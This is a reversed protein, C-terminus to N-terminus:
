KRRGNPDTTDDWLQSQGYTAAAQRAEEYTALRGHVPVIQEVELRLREVAGVFQVLNPIANPPQDRNNQPNFSDAEILIKEKPLFVMLMGPHHLNGAYHYVVLERSGDAFTRSGVVGEFAAQRGSQALRDPHITRPTAWVQRYYPVNDNHTVVTAGEAAYTRLGGSHDFHTHTNIIYKIPKGPIARKIAEIAPLSIEESDPAEVAVIHDLFEIAVTRDRPGLPISWVGPSLQQAQMVFPVAPRAQRIRDPVDIAVALNPKVETVTVDLVPYGGERHIIRSPFTVGGFDKYDAFIAEYLVDGLVPTGVRTQIREVQHQENLVGEFQEHAAAAFSVVTKRAGRVTTHSISAKAAQAAKIFGHPTLVIQAHRGVAAPRMDREEGAPSVNPENGNWAYSGSLSWVQRQESIPQNGGGLPPNQAQTRTREDRLAPAAFDITLVYRPLNFRPWPSAGDYSQGFLFDSGRGSVQITRLGMAGLAAAAADLDGRGQQGEDGRQAAGAAGPSASSGLIATVLIGAAAATPVTCASRGVDFTSRLVVFTSRLVAFTSRLVSFASRLVAFTSRLVYFPFRRVSFPAGLSGTVTRPPNTLAM